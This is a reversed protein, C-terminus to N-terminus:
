STNEIGQRGFAKEVTSENKEMNTNHFLSNKLNISASVELIQLISSIISVDVM